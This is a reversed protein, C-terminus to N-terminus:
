IIMYKGKGNKKVAYLAQDARNVAKMVENKDGKESTAIGISCSLKKGVYEIDSTINNKINEEKIQREIGEFFEESEIKEYIHKAVEVGISNSGNPIGLIFEDGGYRVAYAKGKSIDKLISAFTVLIYDGIHHGYTDNYLKFNDLDIYLITLKANSEKEIMKEFGQRNYVGTLIDTISRKHLERNIDEIQVSFELSKIAELLQKFIYRFIDLHRERLSINNEIFNEQNQIYTVLINTLKDKQFIPIGIMSYVDYKPFVNIIDSYNEFGVESRTTVFARGNEQFYEVIKDIQEQNMNSSDDSYTVKNEEKVEIFVIREIGYNQKFTKISNHILEHRSGVEKNLNDQWLLLFQMDKKQIALEKEIKLEHCLVRIDKISVEKLDINTKKIDTQNKIRNVIEEARIFLGNKKYYQICKEIQAKAMSTKGQKIYLERKEISLYKYTYFMSGAAKKMHFEAQGFAEKSKDYEKKDRKLMADMLYYFFLDEDWLKYNPNENPNLLHGIMRHVKNFYAICKYEKGIYYNAVALIGYIKSTNTIRIKGIDLDEIIKAVLSLYVDAKKYNEAVFANVGMNFLTEAMAEIDKLKVEIKLAKNFSNNAEEYRGSVILNYGRGDYIKIRNFDDDIRNVVEASKNYYKDVENYDGCCAALLIIKNYAKLLLFDNKVKLALEISKKYHILKSVGQGNLFEDENEFGLLNVYALHNYMRRKDLEQIFQPKVEITDRLFLGSWGRVQGMFELLDSKFTLNSDKLDHAIDRCESAMEIVLPFEGKSCNALGILYKAYFIFKKNGRRLSMNKINDCVLLANAENKTYISCLAYLSLFCEVKDDKYDLKELELNNYIINFYCMADELALTYVMNNLKKIYVDLETYKPVFLQDNEKPLKESIEEIEDDVTLVLENILEKEELDKIFTDWEKKKYSSVYSEEEYNVVLIINNLCTNNVLQSLLNIVSAGAFQVRELFILLPKKLSIFSIIKVLSEVFMKQEYEIEPIIIDEDRICVSEEMYSRITSRHLTYVDCQELFESISYEKSFYSKYLDKLWLLFPEYALQMSNSKYQYFLLFYGKDIVTNRAENETMRIDSYKKVFINRNDQNNISDKIIKNIYNCYVKRDM